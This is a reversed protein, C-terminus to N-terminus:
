RLIQDTNELVETEELLDTETEEVGTETIMEAGIEPDQDTGGGTEQGLDQVQGVERRSRREKKVGTGNIRRGAM